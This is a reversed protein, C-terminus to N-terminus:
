RTLTDPSQERVGMAATASASILAAYATLAAPGKRMHWAARGSIHRLPPPAMTFMPLTAPSSPANAALMAYEMAFPARFAIIFCNAFFPNGGSAYAGPAGGRLVKGRTRQLLTDGPGTTVGM